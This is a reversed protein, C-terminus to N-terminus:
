VNVSEVFSGSENQFSSVVAWWAIWGAVVLSVEVDGSWTKIVWIGGLGVSTVVIFAFLSKMFRLGAGVPHDM